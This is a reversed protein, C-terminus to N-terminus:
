TDDRTTKKSRNVEFNELPSLESAKRKSSSLYQTIERERRFNNSVSRARRQPTEDKRRARGREEQRPHKPTQIEPMDPETTAGIEWESEVAEEEEEGAGPQSQALDTKEVGMDCCPDGQKHGPKRCARCHVPNECNSAYHGVKLCNFCTVERVREAQRQEAHYIKARFNGIKITKPLVNTPVDIYAFRRGTKWRTLKGHEDRDCEDKLESRFTCGIAELTSKIESNAFSLPIDSVVVKTTPTDPNVDKLIFPNKDKPSIFTDRITLGEILLKNRAEISNPYLRWLGGIRQAGEMTSYGAVREAVTCIERTTIKNTDEDSVPIDKVKIFVPMVRRQQRPTEREREPSGRDMSAAM